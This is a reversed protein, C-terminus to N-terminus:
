LISKKITAKLCGKSPSQQKNKELSSAPNPQPQTAINWAGGKDPIHAAPMPKRRGAQSDGCGCGGCSPQSELIHQPVSAYYLICEHLRSHYITRLRPCMLQSLARVFLVQRMDTDCPEPFRHQPRFSSLPGLSLRFSCRNEKTKEKISPSPHSPISWPHSPNPTPMLRNRRGLALNAKHSLPLPSTSLQPLSAIEWRWRGPLVPTFLLWPYRSYPNISQVFRLFLTVKLQSDRDCSNACCWPFKM